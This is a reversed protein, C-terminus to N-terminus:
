LSEYAEIERRRSRRVSILRVRGERRTFVATWHRGDIRGVAIFRPEDETIAPAELLFPDLWLAQAREFDIGHKAKNAESKRPDYEVEMPIYYYLFYVHAFRRPGEPPTVSPGLVALRFSRVGAIDDFDVVDGLRARM